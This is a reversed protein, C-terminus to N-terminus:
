QIDLEVKLQECIITCCELILHESKVFFEIMMWDDVNSQLFPSLNWHNGFHRCQYWIDAKTQNYGIDDPKEKCEIPVEFFQLSWLHDGHPAVLKAKM